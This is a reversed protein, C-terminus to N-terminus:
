LNFNKIFDVPKMICVGHKQKLMAHHKEELELLDKDHTLIHEAHGSIATEIIKNDDADRVIDLSVAIQTNVLAPLELLLKEYRETNIFKQLRPKKLTEQFEQVIEFSLILELEGSFILEM